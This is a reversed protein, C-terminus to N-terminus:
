AFGVPAAAILGTNAPTFHGAGANAYNPNINLDTSSLTLNHSQGSTNNYINNYGEYVIAQTNATATGALVNIGYGTNNTINNNLIVTYACGATSPVAVGDGTNADITCGEIEAVINNAGTTNLNVGGATNGWIACSSIRPGDSGQDNIGWGGWGHVNCNKIIASYNTPALGDASSSGGGNFETNIAILGASGVGGTGFAYLGTQNNAHMLCNRVEPNVSQGILGYIANSSGSSTICINDWTLLITSYFVLGNGSIVPQGNYGLWTIRGSTTDGAPYQGYGTQSYDPSGISGGGSRVNIINGATLASPTAPGSVTGGNSLNSPNRFAGGLKGSQTTFSTASGTGVTVTVVNGNTRATIWYYGQGSVQVANGIMAATFLGSSGTDTLTGAALTLASTWSAQASAQDSYNTAAGAIGSDYSGGNADNGDTRVWWQTTATTAM